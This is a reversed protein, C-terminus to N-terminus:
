FFEPGLDRLVLSLCLVIKVGHFALSLVCFLGLFFGNLVLSLKSHFDLRGLVLRDEPHHCCTDNQNDEDALNDGGLRHM